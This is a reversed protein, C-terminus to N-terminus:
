RNPTDALALRGCPAQCRQNVYLEVDFREALIRTVIGRLADPDLREPEGLAGSAVVRVDFRPSDLWDGYGQVQWPRMGFALGVMDRLSSGRILVERGSAVLQPRSDPAASVTLTFAAGALVRSNASLLAHRRASDDAAGTILPIGAFVLTGALLTAVKAVSLSAPRADDLIRRVREALNGSLASVAFRFSPREICHRCVELIGAAYEAGDHGGELVAEDCAREREELMRRGIWWAAPHFWFLTEVLRQLNATLNDYRRIHEREHALVAGMQRDTLKGLLGAPLLVVANFSGAVAPEVNAHTVRADPPAGPMERAERALVHASRWALAWRIAVFLAGTFWTMALISNLGPGSTAAGVRLATSPSVVPVAARVAGDFFLPQGGVESPLGALAGLGYLAAFPVLFKLSAALWLGHRLAAGNSRFLQAIVWVVGCSLTSQWLHDLLAAIM